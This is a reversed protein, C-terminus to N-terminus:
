ISIFSANMPVMGDSMFSVDSNIVGSGKGINLNITGSNNSTDISGAEYTEKTVGIIPAIAFFSVNKGGPARMQGPIITTQWKRSPVM